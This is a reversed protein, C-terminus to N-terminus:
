RKVINYGNKVPCWYKDILTRSCACGAGRLMPMFGGDPLWLCGCPVFFASALCKQAVCGGIM